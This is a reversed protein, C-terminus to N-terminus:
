TKTIYRIQATKGINEQIIFEATGNLNYIPDPSWWQSSSSSSGYFIWTMVYIGVDVDPFLYSIDDTVEIVNYQAAIIDNIGEIFFDVTEIEPIYSLPYYGREAIAVTIDFQDIKFDDNFPTTKM